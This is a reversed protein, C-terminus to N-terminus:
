ARPRALRRHLRPDPEHLHVVDDTLEEHALDSMLLRFTEGAENTVTGDITGVFTFIDPFGNGFAPPYPLPRPATASAREVTKFM